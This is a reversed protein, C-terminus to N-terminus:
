LTSLLACVVIVIPAGAGFYGWLPRRHSCASDYVGYSIFVNVMIEQTIQWLKYYTNQTSTSKCFSLFWYYNFLANM